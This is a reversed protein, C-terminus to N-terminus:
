KCYCICSNCGDLSTEFEVEVFDKKIVYCESRCSNECDPLDRIQHLINEMFLSCEDKIEIRQIEKKDLLNWLKYSFVMLVLLSVLAILLLWLIFKSKKLKKPKKSKKSKKKM